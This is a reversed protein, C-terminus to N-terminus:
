KRLGKRWFRVEESAAWVVFAGVLKRDLELFVGILGSKINM